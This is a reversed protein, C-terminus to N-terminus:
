IKKNFDYLKRVICLHLCLYFSVQFNPAYFVQGEEGMM